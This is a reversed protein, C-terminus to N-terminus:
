IHERVLIRHKRTGNAVAGSIAADVAATRLSIHELIGFTGVRLLERGARGLRWVHSMTRAIRAMREPILAEAHPDRAGVFADPAHAYVARAM